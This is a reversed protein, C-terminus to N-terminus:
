PWRVSQKAMTMWWALGGFARAQLKAVSIGDRSGIEDRETASEHSTRAPQQQPPLENGPVVNAM